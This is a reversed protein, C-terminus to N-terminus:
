ATRVCWSASACRRTLAPQRTDPAEGRRKEFRFFYDDISHLLPTERKECDERHGDAPAHPEPHHPNYFEVIHFGLRNVYFHVNRKDM